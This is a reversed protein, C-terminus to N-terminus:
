IRTYKKFEDTSLKPLEKYYEPPLHDRVDKIQEEVVYFNDILWEAAPTISRQNRVTEAILRFSELLVEENEAVRSFLDVGKISNDSIKHVRAMLEAERELHATSFLEARITEEFVTFTHGPIKIKRFTM